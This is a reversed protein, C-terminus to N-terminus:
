LQLSSVWAFEIANYLWLLKFRQRLDKVKINWNSRKNNISYRARLLTEDIDLQTLDNAFLEIEFCKLKTSSRQTQSSFAELQTFFKSTFNEDIDFLSSISQLFSTKSKNSTSTSTEEKSTQVFAVFFTTSTSTEVISQTIAEFCSEISTSNLSINFIQDKSLAQAISCNFCQRKHARLSNRKFKWDILTLDCKSCTILNEINIEYCFDVIAFSEFSFLQHSWNKFNILRKEYNFSLLNQIHSLTRSFIFSADFISSKSTKALLITSLFTHLSAKSVFSKTTSIFKFSAIQLTLLENKQQKKLIKLTKSALSCFESIKFHINLLNEEKEFNMRFTVIVICHTCKILDLWRKISCHYWNAVIMIEFISINHFWNNFNILDEEYTILKFKFITMVFFNQLSCFKHNLLLKSFSKTSTSNFSISQLINSKSSNSISTSTEKQSQLVELMKVLRKKYSMVFFRKSQDFLFFRFMSDFNCTLIEFKFFKFKKFSQKFKQAQSFVFKQNFHFVLM